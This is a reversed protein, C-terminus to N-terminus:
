QMSNTSASLLSWHGRRAYADADKKSAAQVTSWWREFPAPEWNELLYKCLAERKFTLADDCLLFYGDQWCGRVNIYGNMGTTARLVGLAALYRGLSGTHLGDLALRQPTLSVPELDHRIM